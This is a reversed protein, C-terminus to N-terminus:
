ALLATLRWDLVQGNPGTVTIRLRALGGEPLAVRDTVTIESTLEDGEHVPATHDCSEWSTVTVVNPVARVLQALALGITHGGYVLRDGAETADHHVTAINLTLRALEPANSVVDAGTIHWTRGAQMAEFHEGPVQARFSALNWPPAPPPEPAPVDLPDQHATDVEPDRLPIMACRHFDLVPRSEQDETHVRLVALGTPPRGERRSNQRLAVVETSTRLTDGITPHRHFALGRYFLNARVQRTVLTSQGIAVNWVLAPHALPATGTVARSLREDLPLRLRDGLIAQHVAAHGPTLTMGPADTFRDGVALDEFYPGDVLEVFAERIPVAL